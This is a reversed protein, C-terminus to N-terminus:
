SVAQQIFQVLPKNKPNQVAAAQNDYRSQYITSGNWLQYFPKGTRAMIQQKSRLLVIFGIQRKDLDPHQQELQVFLRQEPPALESPNGYRIWNFGFDSRGEVLLIMAWQEVSIPNVLKLRLGQAYASMYFKLVQPDYVTPLSEIGNEVGRYGKILGATYRDSEGELNIAALIKSRAEQPTGELPVQGPYKKQLNQVFQDTIQATNWSGDPLRLQKIEPYNWYQSMSLGRPQYEKAPATSTIEYLRM